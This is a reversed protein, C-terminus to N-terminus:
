QNAKNFCSPPEKNVWEWEPFIKAFTADEEQGCEIKFLKMLMDDMVKKGLISDHHYDPHQDVYERMWRALTPRKGSATDHIFKKMREMIENVHKCVKVCAEHRRDVEHMIGKYDGKGFLIEM